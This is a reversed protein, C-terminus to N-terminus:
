RAAAGPFDHGESTGHVAAGSGGDKAKVLFSIDNEYVTAADVGYFDTPLITKKWINPGDNVMIMEENSDSWDGNGGPVAPPDAPNWSWMYMPGAEGVLSQCDMQTLDVYITVSDTAVPEVPDTWVKQAFASSGGLFLLVLASLLQKKM